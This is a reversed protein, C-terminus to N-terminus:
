QYALVEGVEGPVVRKEMKRRWDNQFRRLEEMGGSKGGAKQDGCMSKMAQLARKRAMEKEVWSLSERGQPFRGSGLNPKIRRGYTGM